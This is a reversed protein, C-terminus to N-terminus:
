GWNETTYPCLGLLGTTLQFVNDAVIAVVDFGCDWPMFLILSGRANVRKLQLLRM